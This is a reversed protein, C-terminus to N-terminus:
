PRTLVGDLMEQLMDVTYPKPLIGSFGAEAPHRMTEDTPDGSSVVLPCTVGLERLRRATAKGDLGHDMNLDLIVAAFPRGEALAESALRLADEGRDTVAAEYGLRSLMKQALNRLLKEDDMVLIRPILTPPRVPEPAGKPKPQGESLPLYVHVTCGAAPPSELWVFGGHKRVLSYVITLGLGMGKQTGRQKTSFYPDFVRAQLDPPIGPGSDSVSIRVYRGDTIAIPCHQREEQGEVNALRVLISGQQDMAERANQVINGIIQGIHAPDVQVPWISEKAILECRIRGKPLAIALLDRLLETLSVQRRNVAVSDSTDSIKRMLQVTMHLARDAEELLLAAPQDAPTEIRAMEINGGIITLLNNFDHALGGAMMSMAELRQAQRLLEEMQRREEEARLRDTIDRLIGILCCGQKEHVPVLRLCIWREGIRLPRDDDRQFPAITEDDMGRALWAELERADAPSFYSALRSALATLDSCGLMTLASPNINIIRGAGNLEVVGERMGTLVVEAHRRLVLLERTVERSWLGEANLIGAVPGRRERRECCRIAELLHQRMTAAPGKAISIDADLLGLHTSDEIAIGSLVVLFVSSYLPNNRILRCLSVGDIEPMILDTIVIDPQFAALADYAELGNCAPRVEHGADRLFTTVLKLLVPSNDVVLIKHQAM